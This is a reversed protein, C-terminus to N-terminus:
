CSPRAPPWAVLIHVELTCPQLEAERVVECPCSLMRKMEFDALWGEGSALAAFMCPNLEETHYGMSSSSTLPPTSALLLWIFCLYVVLDQEFDFLTLCASHLLSLDAPNIGPNCRSHPVEQGHSRPLVDSELWFRKICSLLDPARFVCNLHKDQLTKPKAHTHSRYIHIHKHALICANQTLFSTHPLWLNANPTKRLCVVTYISAPDTQWRAGSSM